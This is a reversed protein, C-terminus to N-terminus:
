EPDSKLARYVNDAIEEAYDTMPKTLMEEGSLFAFGGLAGMIMAFAPFPDQNRLEGSRAGAELLIMVETVFENVCLFGACKGKFIERNSLYVRLFYDILEPSEKATELYSKVFALIKERTTAKTENVARLREALYSSTYEIIYKALDEKSPFYNYMNGVSMEMARAIDPITTAYYGQDAFLRLAAKAIEEQKKEKRSQKLM